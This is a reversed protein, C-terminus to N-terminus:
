DDKKAKLEELTYRVNNGTLDALAGTMIDEEGETMDALVSIILDSQEYSWDRCMLMDYIQGVCVCLKNQLEEIRAAADDSM